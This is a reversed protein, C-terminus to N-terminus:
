AKIWKENHGCETYSSLLTNYVYVRGSVFSFHLSVSSKAWPCSRWIKDANLFLCILRLLVMVNSEERLSCCFNLSYTFSETFSLLFAPALCYLQVKGPPLSIRSCIAMRWGSFFFTNRCRLKALYDGFRKPQNVWHGWHLPPSMAPVPCSTKIRVQTLKTAYM